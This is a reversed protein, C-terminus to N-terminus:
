AHYPGFVLTANHGGFGFSNSIGYKIKLDYAKRPIHFGLNPEPNDLNITPHVKGTKIGMVTAIAEMGGAAGLCHGIMSKTANMTIREPNKFVKKLANIEAMDGVPTSTAHANIYNVDDVSIGADKLANEIALAVGTGEPHPETIHHADCTLAGGFYEAYITANRALASELSELILVGAGEGMVFGDRDKDFPRSAKEPEHNRKSVAKCACFGGLGVPMIAAEAGGAIMIDVEGKRIHDAAVAISYNATACATSISYNPGMLGLDMALIAGAMNTLIYPVFFPSLRRLGKELYDTVGEQYTSMGGMGSSIMVGCRKKDLGELTDLSFGAHELAKKGAVVAYHMYPDARRAQKPDMYTGVDFNEISAAIQTPFDSVDFTTIPKVGSKGELLLKYFLDVDTGFCSVLGMGTIVVRKKM